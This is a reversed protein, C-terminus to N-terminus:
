RYISPLVRGTHSRYADWASGFREALEREEVPIRAAAISVVLLLGSLGLLWNASVLLVLLMIATFALYIPHRILRYPGTTVLEHAEYLGVGGRYSTGLSSFSWIFFLLTPLLSVVGIWRATIPLPLYSWAGVPLGLLWIALAAYFVLGLAARVVLLGPVEHALQNLSGGHKRTARRAATAAVTAATIFAVIFAVKFPM